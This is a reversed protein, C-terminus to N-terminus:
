KLHEQGHLHRLKVTRGEIDEICDHLLAATVTIHDADTNDMLIKAVAIPHVYYDDGNYRTMKNEKNMNATVYDLARIPLVSDDKFKTQLETKLNEPSIRPDYKIVKPKEAKNQKQADLAPTVVSIVIPIIAIAKDYIGLDIVFQVCGSIILMIWAIYIIVVVLSNRLFQALRDLFLQKGSAKGKHKRMNFFHFFVETLAYFVVTIIGPILWLWQQLGLGIDVYILELTIIIFGAAANESFTSLHSFISKNNHLQHCLALGMFILAIGAYKGGSVFRAGYLLSFLGCFYLIMKVLLLVQGWTADKSVDLNEKKKAKYVCYAIEFAVAGIISVAVAFGTEAITSGRLVLYTAYIAGALSLKLFARYLLVSTKRTKHRLNAEKGM